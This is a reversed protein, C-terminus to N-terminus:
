ALLASAYWDAADRVGPLAFFYGGGTPKVYDELPEGDLRIQVAEFQRHVDRQYCCFALGMDLHGAADFGRSYSFGRRLIRSEATETTRPNSRRIHADHPIVLGDADAEYRPADFEHTGDLPAGSARRRGIMNEQEKLSVRDWFEVLMRIIRVVQYSGGVAWAPEGAGAWVLAGAAGPDERVPNATGDKFGLLNRGTAGPAERSPANFGDIKWRLALDGRTHRALDRLAHLCTDPQNACLQVLLDGHTEGAVLRDNGFVPMPGLGTPKHEALGYREDFLSAGFSVTVTLADPPVVPGLIGSDDQPQEGSVAAPAGGTTLFRARETITRCMRTFQARDPSIVDFAAFIAAAPPPDVIGAQHIGHFPVRQQGATFAADSASAEAATSRGLVAGAAGGAVLGTAGTALGRGLLARRTLGPRGASETM